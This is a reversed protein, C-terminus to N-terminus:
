ITRSFNNFLIFLVTHMSTCIIYIYICMYIQLYIFLVQLTGGQQGFKLKHFIYYLEELSFLNNNNAIPLNPVNTKNSISSNNILTLLDEPKNANKSNIDAVITSIDSHKLKFLDIISVLRPASIKKWSKIDSFYAELM